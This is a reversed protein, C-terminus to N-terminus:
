TSTVELIEVCPNRNPQPHVRILGARELHRLASYKDKRTLDFRKLFATTFTVRRSRELRSRLLLVLYVAWSKGSLSVLIGFVREPLAPMFQRDRRAKRSPLVVKQESLTHFGNRRLDLASPDPGDPHYM